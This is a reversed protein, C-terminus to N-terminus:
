NLIDRSLAYEVNDSATKDTLAYERLAGELDQLSDVNFLNMLKRQTEKKNQNTNYDLMIGVFDIQKEMDKSMSKKIPQVTQKQASPTENKKLGRGAAEAEPASAMVAAGVALPTTKKLMEKGFKKLGELGENQLIDDIRKQDTGTQLLFHTWARIQLQEMMLHNDKNM